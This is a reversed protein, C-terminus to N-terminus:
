PYGNPPGEDGNREIVGVIHDVRVAEDGCQQNEIEEHDEIRGIWFFFIRAGRAGNQGTQCIQSLVIGKVEKEHMERKEIKQVIENSIAM